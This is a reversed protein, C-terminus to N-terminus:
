KNKEIRNKNFRRITCLIHFTFLLLISSGLFTGVIYSIFITLSRSSYNLYKFFASLFILIPLIISIHFLNKEDDEVGFLKYIDM